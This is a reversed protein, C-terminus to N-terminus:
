NERLPIVSTVELAPSHRSGMPPLADAISRRIPAAPLWRFLALSFALEQRALWPTRGILRCFDLFFIDVHLLHM